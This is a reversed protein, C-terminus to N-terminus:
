HKNKNKQFENKLDFRYLAQGRLEKHTLQSLLRILNNSGYFQKLKQKLNLNESRMYFLEKEYKNEINLAEHSIVKKSTKFTGYDDQDTYIFFRNPFHSQEMLITRINLEKAVLYAILDFGNHP